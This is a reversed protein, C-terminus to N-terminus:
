SCTSKEDGFSRGGWPLDRSDAGGLAEVIEDTLDGFLFRHDIFGELRKWIGKRRQPILAVVQSVREVLEALKTRQGGVRGVVGLVVEDLPEFAKPWHQL